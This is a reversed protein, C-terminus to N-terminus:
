GWGVGGGGLGGVCRFLLVVYAALLTLTVALLIVHLQKCAAFSNVM